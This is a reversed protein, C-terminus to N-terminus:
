KEKIKIREEPRKQIKNGKIITEEIMFEKENKMIKKEKGDTFITFTNKTEDVIIGEVGQQHKM